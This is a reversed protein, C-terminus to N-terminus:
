QFELLFLSCILMFNELIRIPDQDKFGHKHYIITHFPHLLDKALLKYDM